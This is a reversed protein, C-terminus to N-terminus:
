EVVQVKVGSRQELEQIHDEVSGKFFHKEFFTKHEHGVVLLDAGEEKIVQVLGEMVTGSKVVKKPSVGQTLALQEALDLIHTGLHSLTEGVSKSSVEVALGKRFFETDVVYVLVLEAGHTKALTAAELAAKQAHTSGTVGCVIKRYSM